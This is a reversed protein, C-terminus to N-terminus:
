VTCEEPEISAVLRWDFWDLHHKARAAPANDPKTRRTTWQHNRFSDFGSKGNDLSSPM